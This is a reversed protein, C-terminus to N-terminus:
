IQYDKLYEDVSEDFDMGADENYYDTWKSGDEDDDLDDDWMEVGMANSYDGIIHNKELWLHQTALAKILLAAEIENDVEVIFPKCPVQPFHYVRLKNNVMKFPLVREGKILKALNNM